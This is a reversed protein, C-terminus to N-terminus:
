NQISLQIKVTKYKAYYYNFHHRVDIHKTQQSVLTNELLFIDGVNDLQVNIPYESTVVMFFLIAHVFLIKCCVEM